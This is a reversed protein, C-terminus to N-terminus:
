KSEAEAEAKGKGKAEAKRIEERVEPTFKTEWEKKPVKKGM